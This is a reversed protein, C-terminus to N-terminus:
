VRITSTDHAGANRGSVEPDVEPDGVEFPRGDLASPSSHRIRSRPWTGVREDSPGSATMPRIASAPAGRDLAPRGDRREPDAHGPRYSGAVPVVRNRTLMGPSQFPRATAAGTTPPARGAPAGEDVVGPREAQGLQPQARRAAGVRHDPQGEAGPDAPDDGDVAVDVEPMVARGALDAVLDDVRVARRAVAPVVAAELREGAGVPDGLRAAGLRDLGGHRGGPGAIRLRDLAPWRRATGRADADAVHDRDDRGIPDDDAAPDRRGPRQQQIRDPGLHLAPDQRRGEAVHRDDRGLQAGPGPRDPRGDVPGFRSRAPTSPAIAPLDAAVGAGRGPGDHGLEAVLRVIALDLLRQALPDRHQRRAVPQRGVRLQAGLEAHAPHGGPVGHLAQGLVAEDVPLGAAAAEHGFRRGVAPRVPEHREGLLHEPAAADRGRPHEGPDDPGRRLRLGGAEADLTACGTTWRRRRRQASSSGIAMSDATRTRSQASATM